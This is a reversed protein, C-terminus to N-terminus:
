TKSMAKQIFAQMEKQFRKLSFSLVSQSIQVADFSSKEFKQVAEIIDKTTQQEFLVGSFGDQVTEATGGKNLAIVPTGCAMAEIPVIGFDEVAAYVFAKAKQMADIMVDKEQYGLVDINTKAIKKINEYEEGDGIVILRKDPMENFAEVILKTKKYPVLRSATLYYEEKHECLTFMGTDVPPYIVSSKRKYIRQIREQVFKSDAIFHNVRYLTKIDWKRIYRLTLKVFIKKVPKLNKTYEDYLDWAYRIPTYCYSIHIQNKTTKVGKAVAWSSSIVLDYKQLDFSEIASPFLLLYNRFYKKAFPLKQIFSTQAYKDNLVNKRDEDSLFDVLSFIDADPYIELVAQLVKEAGADTVLWDHVIATKM